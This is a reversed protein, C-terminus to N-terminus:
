VPLYNMLSLNLIKAGSQLAAQFSNQKQNLALVTSAYDADSLQSLVGEDSQLKTQLSQTTINLRDLNASTAGIVTAVNNEVGNLGTLTALAAPANGATLSDRLTILQTFVNDTNNVFLGRPTGTASSGIQNLDMKSGDQVALQTVNTNGRYTVATIQNSANRTVSFPVYAAATAPDTDSAQLYNGGFLFQGNSDKTNGDAVSQELLNNVEVAMAAMDSSSLVSSARTAIESARSVLTQLQSAATYSAQTHEQVIQTVQLFSHTQLQSNRLELARRYDTPNDSPLTLKKGTSIANQDDAIQSQLTQLQSALSNPFLNSTVRM